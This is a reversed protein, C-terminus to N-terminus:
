IISIMKEESEGHYADAMATREAGVLETKFHFSSKMEHQRETIYYVSWEALKREILTMNTDKKKELSLLDMNLNTKFHQANSAKLSHSGESTIDTINIAYRGSNYLIKPM